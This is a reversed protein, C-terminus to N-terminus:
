SSRPSASTPTTPTPTASAAPSSRAPRSWSAASGASTPRPSGCWGSRPTRSPRSSRRTPRCRGVSCDARRGRAARRHHRRARAAGPRPEGRAARGVVARRRRLAAGPRARDLNNTPEDLLTVPLRRVLLGALGTLVAEGGSLTDAAGTSTPPCGSAPWRRPRANRSTGPTASTPSRPRRRGGRGRAVGAAAGGGRATRRRHPGRPPRRDAPPVRGARAVRVTGATPRLEGAILRLLTSKGSGNAGILGTRGAGFAVDLGSLVVDGDPWAFSLDSCVIAPASM